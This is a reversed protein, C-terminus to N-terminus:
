NDNAHKPEELLERGEASMVRQGGELTPPAVVALMARRRRRLAWARRMEGIAHARMRLYAHEFDAESAVAVHMFGHDGSIACESVLGARDGDRRLSRESVGFRDRLEAASVWRAARRLYEEIDKALQARDSM